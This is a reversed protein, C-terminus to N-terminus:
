KKRYILVKQNPLVENKSTIIKTEPKTPYYSSSNKRTLFYDYILGNENLLNYFKFFTTEKGAPLWELINSLFIADYKTTSQNLFEEENMDYYNIEAKTLLYKLHNYDLNFKKPNGDFRFLSMNKKFAKTKTIQEWFVFYENSLFPKLNNLNLNKTLICKKKCIFYKFFDTENHALILAIKLAAYYKCLRNKDFSDIQTSGAAIAYLLHDGSSTICLTKKNTLDEYNYYSDIKENSWPYLQNYVLKEKESLKKKYLIKLAINIDKELESKLM